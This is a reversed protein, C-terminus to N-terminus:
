TIGTILVLFAENMSPIIEYFYATIVKMFPWLQVGIAPHNIEHFICVDFPHHNPPVEMTLVEM